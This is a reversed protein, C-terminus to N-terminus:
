TEDKKEPDEMELRIYWYYEADYGPVDYEYEKRDKVVACVDKSHKDQIVIVKMRLRWGDQVSQM